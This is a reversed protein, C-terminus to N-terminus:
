GFRIPIELLKSNLNGAIQTFCQLLAWILCVQGFLNQIAGNSVRAPPDCM